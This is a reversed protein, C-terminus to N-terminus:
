GHTTATELPVAQPGVLGLHVVQRGSVADLAWDIAVRPRNGPMAALHHYGRTVVKAPLGSLPVRLPSAAASRGGLDVVANM